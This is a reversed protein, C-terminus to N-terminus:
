ELDNTIESTVARHDALTGDSHRLKAAEDRIGPAKAGRSGRDDLLQITDRLASATLHMYRMTVKMSKHGALEQIAKPAAGRMALHSCFTHRLVHSGVVRLGARRCITRLAARVMNKTWREGASGSFVLDGKLHRVSKLAAALRNTMPVTRRDGGKPTDVHGDWDGEWITLCRVTFDISTWKLALIEGRRLGADGGLLIM